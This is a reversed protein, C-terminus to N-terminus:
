NTLTLPSFKFETGSPDPVTMILIPIKFSDMVLILNSVRSKLDLNQHSFRFKGYSLLSDYM